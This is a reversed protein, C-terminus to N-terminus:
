NKSGNESRSFCLYENPYYRELRVHFRRRWASEAVQMEEDVLLLL